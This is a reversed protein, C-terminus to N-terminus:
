RWPPQGGVGYGVMQGIRYVAADMGGGCIVTEMEMDNPQQM